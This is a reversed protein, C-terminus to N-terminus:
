RVKFLRNLTSCNLDDKITENVLGYKLKEIVESYAILLKQIDENTHSYNVNHSALMLMGRSFMEQLFYTKLTMSSYKETGNINVFSWSPHGSVSMVHGMDLDNIISNVGNIIKEGKCRFDDVVNNAKFFELVRKCAALSLAEGGFTGSFFVDTCLSMIKEAGMVASIPYGNGIGKGFVALDPTVGFLEQAGGNALRMGTCIEDFILVISNQKTLERVQQLYGSSPFQSSMPEMIVAALEGENNKIVAELSSLSDYEFSVTCDRVCKPIGLNKTTAGIYWDHWGHYGCVAVKDKKTYARSLRIAATTADSGTKTFRVMDACPVMEVFLKAVDYELTTPLSFSVGLQLQNKVSNDVESFAYGLSVALLGSVFDVYENGDIDWVHGQNGRSIFQPSVGLPYQMYSKSFTQSALPIVKQALELHENSKKFKMM